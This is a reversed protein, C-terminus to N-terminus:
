KINLLVTETLHFMEETKGDSDRFFSQLCNIKELKAIAEDFKKDDIDTLEAKLSSRSVGDGRYDLMCLAKIVKTEEVGVEEPVNNITFKMISLIFKILEFEGTLPKTPVLMVMDLAQKFGFRVNSFKVSLSKEPHNMDPILISAKAEDRQNFECSADIISEITERDVNAADYGINEMLFSTLAQYQDAIRENPEIM